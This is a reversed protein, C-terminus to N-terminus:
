RSWQARLQRWDRTTTTWDAYVAVGVVVRRPKATLGERVGRLGAALTEAHSFLNWGKVDYTLVGILLTTGPPMLTALDRT